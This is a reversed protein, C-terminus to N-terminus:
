HFSINIVYRILAMEKHESHHFDDVVNECPQPKAVQLQLFNNTVSNEQFNYFDQLKLDIKIHWEDELYAISSLDDNLKNYM